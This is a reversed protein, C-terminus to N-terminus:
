ESKYPRLYSGVFGDLGAIFIETCFRHSVCRMFPVQLYHNMSLYHYIYKVYRAVSVWLRGVTAHRSDEEDALSYNEGLVRVTQGAFLTGSMVRGYVHFSVAEEDPYLKTTYVMVQKSDVSCASMDAALSSDLPGTYLHPVKIAASKVPSPIHQICM